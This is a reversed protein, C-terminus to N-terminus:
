EIHTKKTQKKTKYVFAVSGPLKCVVSLAIAHVHLKLLRGRRGLLWTFHKSERRVLGKGSGAGTLPKFREDEKVRVQVDSPQEPTTKSPPLVRVGRRTAVMNCAPVTGRGSGTQASFLRYGSVLRLGLLRDCLSSRWLVASQDVCSFPAILSLKM